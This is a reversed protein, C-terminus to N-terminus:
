LNLGTKRIMRTFLNAKPVFVPSVIDVKGVVENELQFVLEGLKQGERVEGKLSRPMVVSRKVDGKKSRLMPFTFESAAVGRLKRYKGDDLLIDQQVQEGKKILVLPTYDAFYKKFKGTAFDDRIRGSPSGMVVVICRLGSRKASAVVNFGASRYYGTKLGDVDPLRTLLKNHNHLGFQGNRFEGEKMSTWELLKSYGLLTRGLLALDYSSTQDEKQDKGPPLGHVSQFETDNMGLLKAKENMIAVFAQPTGSVHEAIAYAADNASAIMMAKMLEELSFQEGEKLYVQSGGIKSAEKSVTITDSLKIEGRALKELIVYAVMLKTVSAPARKTHINEGEMVRGSTPEMIVYAQYPGEARKAQGPKTKVAKTQTTNVQNKAPAKKQATAQRAFAFNTWLLLMLVVLFWKKM